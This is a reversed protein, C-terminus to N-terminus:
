GAAVRRVEPTQVVALTQEESALFEAVGERKLTLLTECVTEIQAATIEPYIPLSFVERCAAESKPFEGFGYGLGAYAKQNPIAVPYHVGAGIGAENLRKVVEDRRKTRVVYLHYVHRCNPLVEPTPIGRETLMQSYTEAARRRQATWFELYQLKVRLVAAQLTDLRSNFALFDHHYKKSQGYNRLMRLKDAIEPNNTTAAGGDGFAGLNKGPYFSFAAVDGMSGVRQGGYEAGHAQSADEVLKLNHRRALDLLPTMDAPQGYLHVPLIAKTKPTIKAEVSRPDLTYTRPHIDAFVPTAGSLSIGTASAIFSNAATIVEDGAGIGLATLGLFLADTGSALGVAFKAGCFAAFENEFRTVEEGLIFDGREMVGAMAAGFEAGHAEIQAKLDVLPIKM